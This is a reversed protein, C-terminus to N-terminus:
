GRGVSGSRLLRTPDFIDEGLVIRSHVERAGLWRLDDVVSELDDTGTCALRLQYDYEGTTHTASLVQPVRVLHGLFDRRDIDDKLKVDSLANLTRGLAGLQLKAHYGGIVGTQQLRRVRDATSNASLHVMRALEQYTLRGDRVLATVLERDLEDM